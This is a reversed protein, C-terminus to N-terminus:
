HNSPKNISSGIKYVPSDSLERLYRFLARSSKPPKKHDVEKHNNRILQRIHSRDASPFKEMVEELVGKRKTLLGERLIELHQFRGTEEDKTQSQSDLFHTIGDVNIDRMLAGVYQMQRRRAERKLSQALLLAEKLDEDIELKNIKEKSLEVLKEGMIQLAKMEKKIQTRSKKSVILESDIM